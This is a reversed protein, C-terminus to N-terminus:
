IISSINISEKNSLKFIKNITNINLKISDKKSACIDEKNSFFLFNDGKNPENIPKIGCHPNETNALSKYKFLCIVIPVKIIRFFFNM